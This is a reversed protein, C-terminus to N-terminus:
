ALSHRSQDATSYKATAKLIRLRPSILDSLFSVVDGAADGKNLEDRLAAAREAYAPQDLLARVAGEVREATLESRWLRRGVGLHEVIASNYAQDVFFPICLMPTAGFLAEQVSHPGAQTVFCRVRPHELVEAQPVFTEIRIHEARPCGELLAQQNEPLRWLIRAPLKGLGEYVATAFPRDLDVASGFSVYVVPTESDAEIWAQLGDTLKLSSRFRLPGFEARTAAATRLSQALHQRELPATGSVIWHPNPLAPGRLPFATEFAQSVARKAARVRLWIRPHRARYFGACLTKSIAALRGLGAQVLPAVTSVGYIQVFRSQAYALSGDLSNLVLPAGVWQAMRAYLDGFWLGDAVVLDPRQAELWRRLEPAAAAVSPGLRPYMQLTHVYLCVANFFIGGAFIKRMKTQNKLDETGAITCYAFDFRQMLPACEEAIYCTVDFGAGRLADAIKLLPQLHGYDPMFCLIAVSRGREPRTEIAATSSLLQGM